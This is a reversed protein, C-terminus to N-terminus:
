VLPAAAHHLGNNALICEANFLTDEGFQMGEKFNIKHEELFSRKYIKNWVVVWYRPIFDFGYFGKPSNYPVNNVTEYTRGRYQGFQIINKGLKAEEQMAKIAGAALIDDADLFAIYEGKAKKLGFNRAASVGRNEWHYVEFIKRYEDCIKSSDDTSGDDIVIVQLSKNTQKAVSDLCRKLYPAKNYVPIILSIM